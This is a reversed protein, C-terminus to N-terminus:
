KVGLLECVKKSDMIEDYRKPGVNHGYILRPQDTIIFYRSSFTQVCAHNEQRCDAGTDGALLGSWEPEKVWVTYGAAIGEIDYDADFKRFNSWAHFVVGNVRPDNFKRRNLDAGALRIEFHDGEWSWKDSGVNYSKVPKPDNELVWPLPYINGLEAPGPHVKDPGVSDVFTVWGNGDNKRVLLKMEGFCLTIVADDPIERTKDPYIACLATLNGPTKKLVEFNNNGNKTNSFANRENPLCMQVYLPDNMKSIPLIGDFQDINYQWNNPFFEEWRIAGDGAFPHKLIREMTEADVNVYGREIYYGEADEPFRDKGKAGARIAASVDFYNKGDIVRNM